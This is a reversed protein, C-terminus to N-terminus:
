SELEGWRDYLSELEAAVEKLDDLTQQIKVQDGDYFSPDSITTTLTEQRSELSEIKAPLADLERQLNYSLKGPKRSSKEQKEITEPRSPTKPEQPLIQSQLRTWDSYGGM